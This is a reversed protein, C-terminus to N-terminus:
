PRRPSGPACGNIWARAITRLQARQPLAQLQRQLEDRDVQVAGLTAVAPPQRPPPRGGGAQRRRRPKSESSQAPSGRM